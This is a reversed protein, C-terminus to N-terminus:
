SVPVGESAPAERPWAVPLVPGFAAFHRRFATADDGIYLVAQGQLPQGSPEGDPDLFRIRGRPFCVASAVSLISRFFATETANNILICAQEVEGAHAKRVLAEAFHGVLPQAYPPNLFVRRGWPKDLGDTDKTYFATAKVTRNAIKSSAPDCDIGGMVARAAEIYEPPTYWENEGSARAVHPVSDAMIDSKGPHYPLLRCVRDCDGAFRMLRQATREGIREAELWGLFEGHELEEAKVHALVKGALYAQESFTWAAVGASSRCSHLIAKATEIDGPPVFEPLRREAPLVEVEHPGDIM